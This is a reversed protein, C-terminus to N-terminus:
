GRLIDDFFVHDQSIVHLTLVKKGAFDLSAFSLQNAM